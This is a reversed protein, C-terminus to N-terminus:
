EVGKTEDNYGCDDLLAASLTQSAVINSWGTACIKGNAPSCYCFQNCELSTSVDEFWESRIGQTVGSSDTCTIPPCQFDNWENPDNADILENCNYVLGTIASDSSTTCSCNFCEKTPGGDRYSKLEFLTGDNSSSCSCYPCDCTDKPWVLDNMTCSYIRAATDVRSCESRIQGFSLSSIPIHNDDYECDYMCVNNVYEFTGYNCDFGQSLVNIIGFSVILLASM